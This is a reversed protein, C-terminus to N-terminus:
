KYVNTYGSNSISITYKYHIPKVDIKSPMINAAIIEQKEPLKENSPLRASASLLRFEYSSISSTINM